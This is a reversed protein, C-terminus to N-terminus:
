QDRGGGNARVTRHYGGPGTAVALTALGPRAVFRVGEARRRLAALEDPSGTVVWARGRGLRLARELGEAMARASGPQYVLVLEPRGPFTPVFGVGTPVSAPKPVFTPRDPWYYAFSFSAAFTVLVPDGPRGRALVDASQAKVDEGPIDGRGARVWGPVLLVGAVVLGAVALPATARRELGLRALTALGVAATVTLLAAYFIATRRELFPYAGAFGLAVLEAGVAPVALTLAPLGARWLTVLGVGILALALWWPGWGLSGLEAALRRGVLHAADGLGDDLSLYRLRWYRRLALTGANNALARYVVLDALGLVVTIAALAPLRSWRRAALTVLWLGGLGAAGVLPATNSVLFGAVGAAAFAALTAWSWAREVRALLLALAVAVFAEATYQKLWTHDLVAVSAAGAIGCGLGYLWAWRDRDEPPSPKLGGSGRSVLRGLRWAALATLAAFALPLLRYREPGGVPPVLRLLLTWGIPTSSTLLELQHLPARVSDVVWGEDLWFSRTLLYRPDRIAVALVTLGLAVLGGVALRGARPRPPPAAAASRRLVAPGAPGGRQVARSAVL